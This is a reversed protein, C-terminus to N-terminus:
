QRGYYPAGLQNTYIRFVGGQNARNQYLFKGNDWVIQLSIPEILSPYLFEFSGDNHVIMVSNKLDTGVFMDGSISFTIPISALSGANFGTAAWNFVVEANSLTGNSLIQSRWIGEAPFTTNTGNYTATVYVYGNYVRVSRIDHNEYNGVKINSGTLHNISFMGTRTGGAFLYQNNDFDYFKMRNSTAPLAVFVQASGGGPNIRHINRNGSQQVYLYGGPGFKMDSASPFPATGYQTRDGNPTVKYVKGALGETVFGYLNGEKDIEIVTVSELPNFQTMKEVSPLLRYPYYEAIPIAPPAVVKIKISDGDIVPSIVVFETKTASIIKGLLNDFYVKNGSITDTSASFNEGTIRIETVSSYASDAPLVSTIKPAPAGQDSTYVETPADEECSLFYLSLIITSFIRIKKNFTIM